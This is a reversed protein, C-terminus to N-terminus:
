LPTANGYPLFKQAPSTSNSNPHSGAADHQTATRSHRPRGATARSPTGTTRTQPRLPGCSIPSRNPPRPGM